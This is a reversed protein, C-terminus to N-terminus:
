GREGEPSLAQSLRTVFNPGHIHRLILAEVALVARLCKGVKHALVSGRPRQLARDDRAADGVGIQEATRASSTLSRGRPQEGLSQVARAASAIRRLRAVLALRADLHGSPGREVQDLDVGGRVSADVLNAIQSLFHIKRRRESRVLDVDDVLRVHEGLGREVRQQLGELLRGRMDHEHKAGGVRLLDRQGHDPSALLEHKPPVTFLLDNRPQGVDRLRLLHLDVGLRHLEDRACRLPRHAVRDTQEILQDGKRGTPPPLM